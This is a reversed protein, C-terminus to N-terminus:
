FDCQKYLTEMFVFDDIRVNYLAKTAAHAAYSKLNRRKVNCRM